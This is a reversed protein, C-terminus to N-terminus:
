GRNHLAERTGFYYPQPIPLMIINLKYSTKKDLEKSSTLDQDGILNQGRMELTSIVQLHM